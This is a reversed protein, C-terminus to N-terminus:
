SAFSWLEQNPLELTLESSKDLEPGGGYSRAAAVRSRGTEPMSTRGQRVCLLADRRSGRRRGVVPVLHCELDLRLGTAKESWAPSGAGGFTIAQAARCGKGLSRPPEKDCEGTCPAGGSSSRSPPQRHAVLGRASWKSPPSTIGQTDTGTATATDVVSGADADSQAVRYTSNATCTESAGPALGPAAPTPCTVSGISPDNVLVSALDVNGCTNTVVYSYAITDGVEAAGQDSAPNVTATKAISVAPAAPATDVVAASPASPASANGQTDTGTATATDSVRGADVDAQHRTAHRRHLDGLRRPWAPPPRPRALSRGSPRTTSPWPGLTVNGTNTVVYSYAITDGM